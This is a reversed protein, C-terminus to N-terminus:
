MKLYRQLINKKNMQRLRHGSLSKRNSILASIHIKQMNFRINVEQYRAHLQTKLEDLVGNADAFQSLGAAELLEDRQQRWQKCDILYDQIAKYRYTHRLNLGGSKIGDAIAIFFLIKYLSPRFQGNEKKLQPKDKARIFDAPASVTIDGAKQQYHEIANILKEDSTKDNFLLVQVIKAVRNQLKVSNKELTAYHDAENDIYDLINESTKIDELIEEDYKKDYNILLEEIDECKDKHTMVAIGMIKAIFAKDDFRVNRLLKISTTQQPHLFGEIMKLDRASTSKASQVYKLLIDIM